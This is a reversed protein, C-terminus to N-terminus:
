CAWDSVDLRWRTTPAILLAAVPKYQGQAAVQLWLAIKAITTKTTKKSAHNIHTAFPLFFGNMVENFCVVGVQRMVMHQM